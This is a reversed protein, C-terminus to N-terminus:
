EEYQTLTDQAASIVARMDTLMRRMDVPTLMERDVTRPCLADLQRTMSKYTELQFLTSRLNAEFLGIEHLLTEAGPTGKFKKAIIKALKATEPAQAQSVM